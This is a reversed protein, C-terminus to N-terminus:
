RRGRVQVGERPTVGDETGWRRRVRDLERSDGGRSVGGELGRERSGSSGRTSPEGTVRWRSPATDGEVGCWYGRWRPFDSVAERPAFRHGSRGGRVSGRSPRFTGTRGCGEESRPPGRVRERPDVRERAFPGVWGGGEWPASAEGDGRCQTSDAVGELYRPDTDPSPAANVEIRCWFRLNPRPPPNGLPCPPTWRWEETLPLVREGERLRLTGRVWSPHPPTWRSEGCGSGRGWAGEPRPPPTADTGKIKSPRHPTGRSGAGSEGRGGEPLPHEWVERGGEPRPLMWRSEGCGSWRGRPGTSSGTGKITTPHHPTGSSGAGSGSGGGRASAEGIVRRPCPSLRRREQGWVLVGRCGGRGGAGVGEPGEWSALRCGARGRVLVGERSSLTGGAGEWLTRRAPRLGGRGGM